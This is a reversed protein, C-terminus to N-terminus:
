VDPWPPHDHGPVVGYRRSEPDCVRPEAGTPEQEEQPFGHSVSEAQSGPEPSSDSLRLPTPALKGQQVAAPRRAEVSPHESQEPVIGGGYDALM